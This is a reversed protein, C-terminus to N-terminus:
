ARAATRWRRSAAVKPARTASTNTASRRGGSVIWTGAALAGAGNLEVAGGEPLIEPVVVGPTEPAGTGAAAEVQFMPRRIGANM